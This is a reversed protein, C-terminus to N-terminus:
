PCQEKARRLRHALKRSEKRGHIALRLHILALSVQGTRAERSDLAKERGHRLFSRPRPGCSPRAAALDWHALEDFPRQQALVSRGARKDALVAVDQVEM